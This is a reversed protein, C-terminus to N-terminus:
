SLASLNNFTIVGIVRVRLSNLIYGAIYCKTTIGDSVIQNFHCRESAGRQYAM